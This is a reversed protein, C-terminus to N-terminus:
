SAPPDDAWRYQKGNNEEEIDSDYPIRQGKDDIPLGDKDRKYYKGHPGWLTKWRAGNGGDEDDDYPGDWKAGSAIQDYVEKNGSGDDYEEIPHWTGPVPKTTYIKDGIVRDMGGDKDGITSLASKTKDGFNM